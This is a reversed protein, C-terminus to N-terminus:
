QATDAAPIEPRISEYFQSRAAQMYSAVWLTGIGLCLTGVIMWGIFSLDQVFLEAKHGDMMKRSEDICQRWTYEPHDIKIFYAMSYSYTKVIGPIVFLLSWLAIFISMMINLLINQAADNKFGVLIDSLEMKQGDRTQKLFMYAGAYGLPGGIILTAVAGVAPIAGIAGSVVGIILLVLVAILWNSGFISNGLQDKARTKIEIRTMFVGREDRYYLIM